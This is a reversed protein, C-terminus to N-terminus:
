LEKVTQEIPFRSSHRESPVCDDSPYGIDLLCVPVINEPLSFAKSVLESSFARAWLTGVGLQTAQMMMCTTVISADMDGADYDDGYHMAKWSVNKDYCVLLVVPANYAM